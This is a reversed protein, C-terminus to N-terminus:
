RTERPVSPAGLQDFEKAKVRTWTTDMGNGLRALESHPSLVNPLRLRMYGFSFRGRHGVLVVPPTETETPNSSSLGARVEQMPKM